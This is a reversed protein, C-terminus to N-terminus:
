FRKAHKKNTRLFLSLLLLSKHISKKYQSITKNKSNYFSLCLVISFPRKQIKLGVASAKM